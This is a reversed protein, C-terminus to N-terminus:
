KETELGKKLHSRAILIWDTGLPKPNYDQDQKNHSTYAKAYGVCALKKHLATLHSSYDLHHLHHLHWHWHLFSGSSCCNPSSSSTVIELFVWNINKKKIQTEKILPHTIAWM